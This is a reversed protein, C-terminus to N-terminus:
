SLPADYDCDQCMRKTRWVLSPEEEGTIAHVREYKEPRVRKVGGSIVALRGQRATYLLFPATESARRAEGSGHEAIM